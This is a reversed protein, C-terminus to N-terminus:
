FRYLARATGGGLVLTGTGGFAAALDAALEVQLQEGLGWAVFASGHGLLRATKEAGLAVHAGVRAEPGVFVRHQALLPIAYRAGAAIELARPGAVQGAFVGRLEVGPVQEIAYAFVGGLAMAASTGRAQSPRDLAASGGLSLGVAIPHAEAYVHRVVPEAPPPPPPPPPPPEPPKPKVKPKRRQPAAGEWPLKVNKGIGEPRLLLALMEAVQAPAEDLDIERALSEVRGSEVQCAQLEVRYTTYGEEETGDPLKAPPADRRELHGTVTWQSGSARGAARYEQSTDPLGDKIAMEASLLEPETPPVYGRSMAAERAWARAQDLEAKTLGSAGTFPLVAVKEPAASPAPTSSPAPASPPRAGSASPAPLAPPAAMSARALLALVAFTALSISSRLMSASRRGSM